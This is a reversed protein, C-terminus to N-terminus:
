PFLGNCVNTMIEKCRKKYNSMRRQITRKDIHGGDVGIGETFSPVPYRKFSERKQIKQSIEYSSLQPYKKEYDYILKCLRLLNFDSIKTKPNTPFKPTDGRKKIGFLKVWNDKWFEDPKVGLIYNENGWGKYMKMNVNFNKDRLCHQLYQFWLIYVRKRHSIWLKNNKDYMVQRSTPEFLVKGEESQRVKDGKRRYKEM